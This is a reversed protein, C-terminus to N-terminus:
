KEIEKSVKDFADELIREINKVYKDDAYNPDTRAVKKSLCFLRGHMRNFTLKNIFRQRKNLGGKGNHVVIHSNDVVMVSEGEPLNDIIEERFRKRFYSM